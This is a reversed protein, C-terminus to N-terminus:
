KIIRTFVNICHMVPHNQLLTMKRFLQVNVYEMVQACPYARLLPYRSCSLPSNKEQFTDSSSRRFFRIKSGVRGIFRRRNKIDVNIKKELEENALWM